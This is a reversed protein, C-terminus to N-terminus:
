TIDGSLVWENAADQYLSLMAYRTRSTLTSPTHITVGSGPAITVQGIGKVYVPILSGVPLVNPPIILSVPSSSNMVIMVGNADSAALTYGGIQENRVVQNSVDIKHIVGGSDMVQWQLRNDAPKSLTVDGNQTPAFNADPHFTAGYITGLLREEIELPRYEFDDAVVGKQLQLSGIIATANGIVSTQTLGIFLRAGNKIGATASAPITIAIKGSGVPVSFTADLISKTFTANDLATNAYLSIKGNVSGASTSANLDFSVTIAQGDLDACDYSNIVQALGFYGGVAASTAVIRAATRTRFGVPAAFKFVDINGGSHNDLIWRDATITSTTGNTISTFSIGANWFEFNGNILRNKLGPAYSKMGSPFKAYGLTKDFQLGPILSSDATGSTGIAVEPTGDGALRSKIRSVGNDITWSPVPNSDQGMSQITQALAAASGILPVSQRIIAFSGQPLGAAAPTFVDRPLTWPVWLTLQTASDVSKIIGFAVGTLVFIDGNGCINVTVGSTPDITQLSTGNVFTVIPSGITVQAIGTSYVPLAM